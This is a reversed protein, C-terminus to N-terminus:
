VQLIIKKAVLPLHFCDVFMSMNDGTSVAINNAFLQRIVCGSLCIYSHCWDEWTVSTSFAFLIFVFLYFCHWLLLVHFCVAWSSVWNVLGKVSSSKATPYNLLTLNIQCLKPSIFRRQPLTVVFPDAFKNCPYCRKAFIRSPTFCTFGSYPSLLM